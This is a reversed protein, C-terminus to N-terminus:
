LHAQVLNSFFYIILGGSGYKSERFNISEDM